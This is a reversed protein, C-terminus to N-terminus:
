ALHPSIMTPHPEDKRLGQNDRVSRALLLLAKGRHLDRVTSAVELSEAGWPLQHFVQTSPGFTRPRKDLESVEESIRLGGQANFEFCAFSTRDNLTLDLEAPSQSFNVHYVGTRPRYKSNPYTIELTGNAQFSARINGNQWIGVLSNAPDHPDRLPHRSVQWASVVAVVMLVLVFDLRVFRKVVLVNLHTDSPGAPVCGFQTEIPQFL